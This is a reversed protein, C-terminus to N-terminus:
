IGVKGDMLASACEYHWNTKTRTDFKRPHCGPADPVNRSNFFVYRPGIVQETLACFLNIYSKGGVFVVPDATDDPMMCWDDYADRKRRRKHPEANSSFTIDYNPTLFEAGILGWGASLIYLRDAGYKRALRAYIANSYLQWAPLLGLPNGEPVGKHLDNYQLLLKRWTEGTDALGDPHAYAFPGGQAAKDPDSVFLVEGGSRLRLCGARRQKGAACQIVIIPSNNMVRWVEDPRSFRYSGDLSDPGHAEGVHNSNGQRSRRIRERKGEDAKVLGNRPASRPLAWTTYSGCSHAATYRRCGIAVTRPVAEDAEYGVTTDTTEFAPVSAGSLRTVTVLRVRDPAKAPM